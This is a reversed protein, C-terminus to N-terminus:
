RSECYVWGGDEAKGTCKYARCAWSPNRRGWRHDWGQPGNHSFSSQQHWEAKQRTADPPPAPKACGAGAAYVDIAVMTMAALFCFFLFKRM